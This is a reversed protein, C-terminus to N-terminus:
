LEFTEEELVEEELVEEELVEEELVEDKVREEGTETVLRDAGAYPGAEDYAGPFNRMEEDASCAEGECSASTETGCGLLLLSASALVVWYFQKRM